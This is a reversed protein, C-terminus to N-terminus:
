QCVFFFNHKCRFTIGGVRRVLRQLREREFPALRRRSIHLNFNKEASDAVRVQMDRSILPTKGSIWAHGSVLDDTAHHFRTAVDLFEFFPIPDRDADSFPISLILVPRVKEVM